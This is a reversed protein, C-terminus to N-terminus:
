PSLMYEIIVEVDGASTADSTRSEKEDAEPSIGELSIEEREKMHSELEPLSERDLWGTIVGSGEEHIVDRAQLDDLMEALVQICGANKILVRYIVKNEMIGLAQMKERQAAENVEYAYREEEPSKELLPVESPLAHIQEQRSEDLFIEKGEKFAEEKEGESFAATEKAFAKRKLPPEKKALHGVDGKEKDQISEDKAKLAISPLSKEELERDARHRTPEERESFAAKLERKKEEAPAQELSVPAELDKDSVCVKETQLPKKGNVKQSLLFSKEKEGSYHQFVAVLIMLFGAALALRPLLIFSLPRKGKKLRRIIEGSMGEPVTVKSLGKMDQELMLLDEYYSRCEECKELHKRLTDEEEKELMKDIYLSIKEKDHAKM